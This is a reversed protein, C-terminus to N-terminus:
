VKLIGNRTVHVLISGAANGLAILLLAPLFDFRLGMCLYSIDAISHEFGSLIFMPICLFIGLPNGSKKWSVVAAYMLIGCLLGRVFLSWWPVALKADIMASAAAVLGPDAAICLFAVAAAGAFNGVFVAAYWWVPKVRDTIFGIKGTFLDLGFLCVMYLAFSFLIAAAVKDDMGAYLRGALAVAGGAFLSKWYKKM